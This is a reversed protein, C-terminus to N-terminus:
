EAACMGPHSRQGDPTDTSDNCIFCSRGDQVEQQILHRHAAVEPQYSSRSRESAVIHAFHHQSANHARLHENARMNSCANCVEAGHGLEGFLGWGATRSLYPFEASWTIFADLAAQIGRERNGTMGQDDAPFSLSDGDRQLMCDICLRCHGLCQGTYTVYQNYERMISGCGTRYRRIPGGTLEAGLNAAEEEVQTPRGMGCLIQEGRPVHRIFAVPAPCTGLPGTGPMLSSARQVDHSWQAFGDIWTTDNRTQARPDATLEIVTRVAEIIIEQARRTMHWRSDMLQQLWATPDRVRLGLMTLALEMQRVADSWRMPGQAGEFLIGEPRPQQGFWDMGFADGIMPMYQASHSTSVEHQAGIAPFTQLSAHLGIWPVSGAIVHQELLGTGAAWEETPVSQNTVTTNALTANVHIWRNSGDVKSSCRKYRTSAHNHKQCQKSSECARSKRERKRLTIEIAIRTDTLRILMQQESPSSHQGYQHAVEMGDIIDNLIANYEPASIGSIAAIGETDLQQNDRMRTQQLLQLNLHNLEVIHQRNHQGKSCEEETTRQDTPDEAISRDSDTTPNVGGDEQARTEADVDIIDRHQQSCDHIRRNRTSPEPTSLQTVPLTPETTIETPTQGHSVYIDRTAMMQRIVAWYSQLNIGRGTLMGGSDVYATRIAARDEVAVAIGGDSDIYQRQPYAWIRCWADSWEPAVTDRENPLRGGFSGYLELTGREEHRRRLDSMARQQIQQQQREQVSGELVADTNQLLNMLWVRQANTPQDDALPIRRCLSSHHRGRCAASPANGRECQICNYTSSLALTCQAEHIRADRTNEHEDGCRACYYTNQEFLDGPLDLM